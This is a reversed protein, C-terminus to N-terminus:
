PGVEKGEEGESARVPIDPRRRYPAGCEYREVAAQSELRRTLDRFALAASDADLRLSPEPILLRVVAECLAWDLSKDMAQLDPCM